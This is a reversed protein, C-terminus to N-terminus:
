LGSLVHPLSDILVGSAEVRYSCELSASGLALFLVMAAREETQSVSACGGGAATETVM